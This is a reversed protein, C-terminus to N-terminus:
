ARELKKLMAIPLKVAFLGPVGLHLPLVIQPLFGNLM